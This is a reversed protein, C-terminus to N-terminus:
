TSLPGALESRKPAQQSSHLGTGPIKSKYSCVALAPQQEITYLM